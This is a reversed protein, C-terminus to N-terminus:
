SDVLWPAMRLIAVSIPLSAIGQFLLYIAGIAVRLLFAERALFAAVIVM